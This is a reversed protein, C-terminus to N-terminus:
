KPGPEKGSGGTHPAADEDESDSALDYPEARVNRRGRSSSLNDLENEDFDGAEVDRAKGMSGNALPVSMYGQGRARRRGRWVWWGFLGAAILVFVLAAEGSRYYARLEADKVKQKEDEIAITSNPHGGVSTESGAKEGDIRSDTPKGGISAIDVGMFRDLMDRSRRPWDFPVMHSANYFLVYTLNRAEQYIGAPEDEFTWERKPAWVGPSIEFGTGGLWKMNGIMDETGLHNCIMDKAGSFLVVPVGAELIGPLFQVGPKSHSARFASSVAGSCETWGTRKDPNIHLATIVDQRRLYPTVTKLDPPWAMGCSPWNDQLRIDYMNYCKGNQKSVMLVTSLVTECASVDVKEDGGPRGLAAICSSHAAEVKQAEPTGGQILNEQYAFPLYSQYQESPAIWGNGILLGKINWTRKGNARQVVNRELIAKTIYPIHQGAYSEGAFYLDDSEYQPFLAFWKELFILFQDAMEQLEHLYSDTNVYSFGTGVPNDVFLLNAFEDWSGENYELRGGEKVRYPGLEMLAGDMSSCGPGGNLWIVTRPRDAIHRNQFHWFFLHGNHEPTIEVHGAHMRLLPGSPQGPLSHVFYDAATKETRAPSAMLLLTALAWPLLRRLWSEPTKRLPPNPGAM